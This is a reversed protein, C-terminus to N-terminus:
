ARQPQQRVLLQRKIMSELAIVAADAPSVELADPRGAQIRATEQAAEAQLRALVEHSLFAVWAHGEATTITLYAAPSSM